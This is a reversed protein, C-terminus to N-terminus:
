VCPSASTDAELRSNSPLARATLASAIVVTEPEIQIVHGAGISARQQTKVMQQVVERRSGIPKPHNFLGFM